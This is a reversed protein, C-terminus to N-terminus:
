MARGAEGNLAGLADRAAAAVLTRDLMTSFALAVRALPVLFTVVADSILEEDFPVAAVPLVRRGTPVAAELAGAERGAVRAPCRTLLVLSVLSALAPVTTLFALVELFVPPGAVLVVTMFVIRFPTAPSVFLAAADEFGAAVVM